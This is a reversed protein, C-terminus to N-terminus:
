RCDHWSLIWWSRTTRASCMVGIMEM